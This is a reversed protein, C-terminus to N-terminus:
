KVVQNRGSQKGKYLKADARNITAEIGLRSNYEEMGYTMSIHFHYDKFDMPTNEITRRLEDLKDYAKDMTMNEFAFLFEEGGWRAVRGKDKMFNRFIDAATSLVHDGTDHGYTDNVKKFFDIDGIAMTFTKGSRNYEFVLKALHENMHRRNSLGTLTDINAMRELNDNIRRLKEEAQNFKNCYAYATTLLLCSFVFINAIQFFLRYGEKPLVYYPFASCLETLCMLFIMLSFAYIRKHFMRRTKKFYVLLINIFIMIHFELNFGLYLAPLTAFVINVTNLLVMSLLTHDDYTLIFCGITLAIAGIMLLGLIYHQMSAIVIGIILYYVSFICCMIRLLVALDKTEKESKVDQFLFTIFRDTFNRM